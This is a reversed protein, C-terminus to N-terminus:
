SEFYEIALRKYISITAFFSTLTTYEDVQHARDWADAGLIVVAMKPNGQIFVSADTAGNITKLAVPRDQYTARAIKAALQVFANDKATAVPYFNHILKFELKGQSQANLQAIKAQIRDIVQQNGFAKTPRINGYLEAYDPITNVQDGAKLITVSHRVTGLLPDNPADDFLTQEANIYAVLGTIANVGKEPLSSHAAVGFSKIQYNLSGAHAYVVQGSTPEGVAMASIGQAVGQDKLRYAGPAGYEEGATAIFRVTGKPLQGTDILELLAIVQAALGSKMDASGRGYLKDGVIEAKFPDHTWQSSDPVAVTDQHGEFALVRADVGQGVEAILDSRNDDFPDLRVKIGRSAFLKALYASVPAENGNVSNLHILDTLIKLRAKDEM